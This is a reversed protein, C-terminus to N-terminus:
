LLQTQAAEWCQTQSKTVTTRPVPPPAPGAPGVTRQESPHAPDPAALLPSENSLSVSAAATLGGSTLARSAEEQKMGGVGQPTTMQACTVSSSVSAELPATTPGLGSLERPAGCEKKNPGAPRKDLSGVQQLKGEITGWSLPGARQGRRGQSLQSTIALGAAQVASPTELLRSPPEM